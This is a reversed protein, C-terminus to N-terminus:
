NCPFANIFAKTTLLHADKHLLNPNNKLYGVVIRAAQLNQVGERPLCAFKRKLMDTVNLTIYTLSIGHMFGFCYGADQYDGSKGSGHDNIRIASQCLDLLKNGDFAYTKVPTSIVICSFVFTFYLRKM